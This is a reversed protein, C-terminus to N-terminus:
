LHRKWKRTLTQHVIITKIVPAYTTHPFRFIFFFVDFLRELYVVFM